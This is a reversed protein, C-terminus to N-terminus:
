GLAQPCEAHNYQRGKRLEEVNGGVFRQLRNKPNFTRGCWDCTREKLPKRGMRIQRAMERAKATAKLAMCADHCHPYPHKTPQSCQSCPASRHKKKNGCKRSRCWPKSYPDCAACYKRTSLRAVTTGYKEAEVCAVTPLRAWRRDPEAPGKCLVCLGWDRERHPAAPPHLSREMAMHKRCYFFHPAEPPHIEAPTGHVCRTAEAWPGWQGRPLTRVEEARVTQWRPLTSDPM